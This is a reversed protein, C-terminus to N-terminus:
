ARAASHLASQRSNPMSIARRSPSRGRRLPKISTRWRSPGPLTGRSPRLRHPRGFSFLHINTILDITENSAESAGRIAKSLKPAVTDPFGEFPSEFLLDSM